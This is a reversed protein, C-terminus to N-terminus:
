PRREATPTSMTNLSKIWGGLMRGVELLTHQTQFIKTENVIKLELFLRLKLIAVENHGSAKLLYASKLPKPANKAMVLAGLCDLVSTELSTGLSYRWRKETHSVIDVVM